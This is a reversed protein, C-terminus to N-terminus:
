RHVALGYTAFHALVPLAFMLLALWAAQRLIATRDSHSVPADPTEVLFAGRGAALTVALVAGTAFFALASARWLQPGLPTLWVFAAWSAFFVLVAAPGMVGWGGSMRRAIRTAAVIVLVAGFAYIVNARLPM